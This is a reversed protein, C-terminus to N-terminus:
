IQQPTSASTELGNFSGWALSFTYVYRSARLTSIDLRCSRTRLPCVSLLFVFPRSLNEFYDQQTSIYSIDGFIDDTKHELFLYKSIYAGFLHQYGLVFNYFRETM